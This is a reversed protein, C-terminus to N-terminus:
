HQSQAFGFRPLLVTVNAAFCYGTGRKTQILESDRLKRRLRLVQVDVSRDFVDEHRRTAQLLQERTLVCYPAAIFASLLAFESNTMAVQRGDPDHLTRRRQDFCWGEFAYSRYATPSFEPSSLHRRRIARMRAFLEGLGFPRTIFDDAGMELGVVKDAEEATCAGAVIVPVGSKERIERIMGIADDTGLYQDLVVMDVNHSTLARLLDRRNGVSIMDIGRGHMFATMAQREEAKNTAVLVQGPSIEAKQAASSLAQMEM